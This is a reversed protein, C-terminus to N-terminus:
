VVRFLSRSLRARIVSGQHEWKGVGSVALRARAVWRPMSRVVPSRYKDSRGAYVSQPDTLVPLRLSRPRLCPSTQASPSRTLVPLLLSRPVQSLVVRRCVISVAQRRTDTGPATAVPANSTSDQYGVVTMERLSHLLVKRVNISRCKRKNPPSPSFCPEDWM